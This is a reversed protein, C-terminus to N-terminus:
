DVQLTAPVLPVLVRHVWCHTKRRSSSSPTRPYPPPTNSSPDPRPPDSGAANPTDLSYANSAYTCRTYTAYSSHACRANTSRMINRWPHQSPLKWRLLHLDRLLAGNSLLRADLGQHM